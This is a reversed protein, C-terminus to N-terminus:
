AISDGELNQLQSMRRLFNKYYSLYYYRHVVILTSKQVTFCIFLYIFEAMVSFVSFISTFRAGWIEICLLWLMEIEAIAFENWLMILLAYCSFRKLVSFTNFFKKFAQVQFAKFHRIFHWISLFQLGTYSGIIPLIVTQKTSIWGDHISTVRLPLTHMFYM